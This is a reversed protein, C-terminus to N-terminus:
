VYRQQLVYMQVSDWSAPIMYTGPTGVVQGLGLINPYIDNFTFSDDTEAFEELNLLVNNSVFPVTFLDASFM